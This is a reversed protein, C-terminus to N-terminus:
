KPPTVEVGGGELTGLIVKLVKILVEMSSKPKTELTNRM